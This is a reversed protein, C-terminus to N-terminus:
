FVLANDKLEFVRCLMPGRSLWHVETHLLPTKFRAGMEECIQYFLRSKLPRSKIYNVMQIVKDIM